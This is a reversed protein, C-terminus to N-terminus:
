DERRIPRTLCTPGGGGMQCLNDGNFELVQVGENELRQKTVPNGSIVICKRPAIALVNCGMSAYESDPVEIMKIGRSILYERFPVPMLRSYVVALNKDVPSIISMLHFCDERGNWHPLPVPIIEKIVGATLDRLQRIGEENTRYAIGVAIIHEDLWVVDGGELQGEGTISGLIPIGIEDFYKRISFPEEQRQKKGMNCLVAGKKTILTPDRTYIADLGTKSDKPLYYFHDVDKKLLEVFCEFEEIVAKYDPRAKYHLDKWNANIDDQSCFADKPHKLL